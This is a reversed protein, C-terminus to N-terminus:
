DLRSPFLLTFSPHIKFSSHHIIFCYPLIPITTELLMCYCTTDLASRGM